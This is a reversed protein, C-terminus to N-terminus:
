VGVSTKNTFPVMVFDMLGYRYLNKYTKGPYAPLCKRAEAFDVKELEIFQRLKKKQEKESVEAYKDLYTILDLFELASKNMSNVEVLPKYVIFRRKGLSIKRQETTAANSRIELVAAHQSTFGYSNALDLGTVYGSVKGDVMLYKKDLYKEISMKGEGGLSNRYNRFYVGPQFRRLKGGDVLSKMNQRKSDISKGPIDCFFIPEDEDFNESIYRYLEQPNM